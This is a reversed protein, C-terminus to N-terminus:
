IRFNVGNSVFSALMAIVFILHIFSSVQSEGFVKIQKKDPDHIIKGGGVCDLKYNAGCDSSVEKLINDSIHRIIIVVISLIRGFGRM